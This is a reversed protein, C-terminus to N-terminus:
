KGNIKDFFVLAADQWGLMRTAIVRMDSVKAELRKIEATAIDCTAEAQRCDNAYTDCQETLTEIRKLLMDLQKEQNGITILPDEGSPIPPPKISSKSTM